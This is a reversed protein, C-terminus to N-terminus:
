KRDQIFQWLLNMCIRVGDKKGQWRSGGRSTGFTEHEIEWRKRADEFIEEYERYLKELAETDSGNSSM